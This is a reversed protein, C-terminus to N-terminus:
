SSVNNECAIMTGWSVDNCICYRPEDPDVADIDIDNVTTASPPSFIQIRRFKRIDSSVDDDRKRKAPPRQLHDESESENGPDRHGEMLYPTFQQIEEIRRFVAGCSKSGLHSLSCSM